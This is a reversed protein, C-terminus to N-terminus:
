RPDVGAAQPRQSPAAEAPSRKRRPALSGRTPRSLLPRSSVFDGLAGDLRRSLIAHGEANPHFDDPAIALTAAPHGDFANSLDVVRDFGASEALDVLRARDGAVIPKGVRPLLVWVAPVGRERCDAVARRYVGALIAERHPRLRTKLDSPLPATIAAQRLTERYVPAEFGIGRPLLVRLRREDWGLDALTAEFIVLDPDTAWGVRGFHEWRQGPAHGPVAFNLVEVRRPTQLHSSSVHDNEPRLDPGREGQTLPSRVARDDWLREVMPEFGLGDDVGWGSAISDGVLAVRLTGSPKVVEYARDRM